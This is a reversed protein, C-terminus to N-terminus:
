MSRETAWQLMARKINEQEQNIGEAVTVPNEKDINWYNMENLIHQFSHPQYKM